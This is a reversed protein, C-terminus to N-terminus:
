PAYDMLYEPYFDFSTNNVRSYVSVWYRFASPNGLLDGDINFEVRDDPMDAIRTQSVVYRDGTRDFVAYYWGTATHNFDPPFNLLMVLYYREGAWFPGSTIMNWMYNTEYKENLNPNGALNITLDFNDGSRRVSAATIEHYGMVEPIASANARQLVPEADDDPDDISSEQGSFFGAASQGPMGIGLGAMTIPVITAAAVAAVFVTSAKM